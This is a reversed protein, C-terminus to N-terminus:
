REEDVRLDKATPKRVYDSARSRRLVFACAIGRSMRTDRGRQRARASHVCPSAGFCYACFRRAAKARKRAGRVAADLERPALGSASKHRLGCRRPARPLQTPRHGVVCRDRSAPAHDSVRRTHVVACRRRTAELVAMAARDFPRGRRKSSCARTGTCALLDLRWSSCRGDACANGSEAVHTPATHVRSRTKRVRKPGFTAPVVITSLAPKM